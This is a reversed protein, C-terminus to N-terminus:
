ASIFIAVLVGNGNRYSRGSANLVFVANYIGRDRIEIKCRVHQARQLSGRGVCKYM